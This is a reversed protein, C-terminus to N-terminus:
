VNDSCFFNWSNEPARTVPKASREQLLMELESRTLEQVKELYQSLNL